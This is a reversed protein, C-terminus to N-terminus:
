DAVQGRRSLLLALYPAGEQLTRITNPETFRDKNKSDAILVALVQSTDAPDLIPIGVMSKTERDRQGYQAIQTPTFGLHLMEESFDEMPLVVMKTERWVRGAVGQTEAVRMRAPPVGAAAYREWPVLKRHLRSYRYLTLRIKEEAPPHLRDYLMRLVIAVGRDKLSVRVFYAKEACLALVPLWLLEYQKEGSLYAVSWTALATLLVDGIILLVKKYNRV